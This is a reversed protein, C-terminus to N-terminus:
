EVAESLELWHEELEDNESELQRLKETLKMLGDFDSQDHDAMKAHVGEIKSATKDMRREVAALEKQAARREAGSLGSPSAAESEGSAAGMGGTAGGAGSAGAAADEAAKQVNRLELYQDVGGPLDRLGQNMVAMQRDTLRELLYRDHSVVVLTGPWSDLLDEVAALTDTDLDNTPEDLLLVNPENMLLRMLQLRRREGGSLEAVRTWARERTFGLREVLQGATIEKKGVTVRAAIEHVSEVM